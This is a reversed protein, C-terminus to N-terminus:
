NSSYKLFAFKASPISLIHLCPITVGSAQIFPATPLPMEVSGNNRAAFSASFAILYIRDEQNGPYNSRYRRSSPYLLPIRPTGAPSYQADRQPIQQGFRMAIAMPMLVHVVDVQRAQFAEGLQAWSRFLTPRAVDLGEAAFLGRAHGLLLPTADTIPLYGIRLTPNPAGSDLLSPSATPSSCALLLGPAALSAASALRLLYRRSLRNM